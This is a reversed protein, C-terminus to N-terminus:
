LMQGSGMCAPCLESAPSQMLRVYPIDAGCCVCVGYDPTHLRALTGSLAPQEGIQSRILRELNERQELTFYHYHM